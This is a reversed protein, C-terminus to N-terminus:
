KKVGRSESTMKASFATAVIGTMMSVALAGMIAGLLKGFPTIPAVADYGVTTLTVVSWRMSEPIFVSAGQIDGESVYLCAGSFFIVAFFLYIAAGLSSREERLVDFPDHFAPSYHSIKLLRV